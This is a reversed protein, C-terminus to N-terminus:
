QSADSTTPARGKGFGFPLSVGPPRSPGVEDRWPGKVSASPKHPRDTSAVGTGIPRTNRDGEAPVLVDAGLDDITPGLPLYGASAFRRKTFAPSTRLVAAAKSRTPLGAHSRRSRHSGLGPISLKAERDQAASGGCPQAGDAPRDYSCAPRALRALLGPQLKDIDPMPLRALFGTNGRWEWPRPVRRLRLREVPSCYFIRPLFGINLGATTSAIGRM